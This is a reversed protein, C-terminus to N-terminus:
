KEKGTWRTQPRYREAVDRELLRRLAREIEPKPPPSTREVEFRLHKGIALLAKRQHDNAM